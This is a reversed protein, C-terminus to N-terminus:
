IIKSIYKKNSFHAVLNKYAIIGMEERTNNTASGIHPLMTLNPTSYLANNIKPENIFVDLGAGFIKNKLLSDILSKEDIVEGRSTNILILNKKMIKFHDKKLVPKNSGPVHLSLVDSKKILEKIDYVQEAPFDIKKVISRSYFYIKMGLAHYAKRATAKGIRGMGIIGLNKKNLDIGLNEVVSFGKWEKNRLQNELLTTKRSVALMLFLAINSTSDTLVDPTNTITIKKTKIFELDINSVGVGFNSIISTRINPIDLVEKDFNDSVCCLIGDYKELAEKLKSKSFKKDLPNLKVDFKKKLLSEVSLPLKRTLIIKPKFM